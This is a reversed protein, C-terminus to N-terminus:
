GSVRSRQCRPPKRRNQRQFDRCRTPRGTRRLKGSRYPLSCWQTSIDQFQPTSGNSNRSITARRLLSLHVQFSQLCAIGREELISDDWMALTLTPTIPLYIQIGPVAIGLNGYPGFQRDNHLTMPHDGILFVADANAELLFWVKSALIAPHTRLSAALNQMTAAKIDAKSMPRCGDVEAPDLGMQRIHNEVGKQLRELQERVSQTRMFQVTCFMLLWTQEAQSLNALSRQSIGKQLVLAANAEIDSLSSELSVTEDGLDLDYFDFAAAVNRINSIFSTGKAKDFIHVQEAGRMGAKKIAFNRLLLKPVHHQNERTNASVM